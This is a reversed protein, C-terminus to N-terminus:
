LNIQVLLCNPGSSDCLAARGGAGYTVRGPVLPKELKIGIFLRAFLIKWFKKRGTRTEKGVM